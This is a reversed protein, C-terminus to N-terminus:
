EQNALVDSMYRYEKNRQLDVSYIIGYLCNLIYRIAAQSYYGASRGIPNELAPFVIPLDVGQNEQRSTIMIIKCQNKRLVDLAHPIGKLISGTYSVVLAIDKATAGYTIAMEENYQSVMIPHLGIKVLMNAFASASIYSDGVAYIFIQGASQLWYAAQELREPKVSAFCANIAERSIAAVSSMISEPHERTTFPDDINVDTKQTRHKSLARALAVRFDRYGDVGVKRCLRIIAANSTYTARALDGINMEVSDDINELIYDAIHRETESFGKQEKLQEIMNM